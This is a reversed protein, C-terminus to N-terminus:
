QPAGGHKAVYGRIFEERQAPTLRGAKVYQDALHEGAIRVQGGQTMTPAAVTQKNKGSGATVTTSPQASEGQALATEYDAGRARAADFAKAFEDTGLKYGHALLNSKIAEVRQYGSKADGLLANFETPGLNSNLISAELDDLENASAGAGTIAKRYANFFQKLNSVFIKADGLYQKQEDDLQSTDIRDLQSLAGIKLKNKYGLFREPSLGELKALMYQTDRANGLADQADSENKLTLPSSASSSSVNNNINVANGKAAGAARQDNRQKSLQAVRPDRAAADYDNGYGLDAAASMFDKDYNGSALGRKTADTQEVISQLVEPPPPNNADVGQLIDQDLVGGQVGAVLSQYTSAWPVKGELAERAHHNLFNAQVITRDKFATFRKNNAEATDNDAQQQKIDLERSKNNAEAAQRQMAIGEQPALAMLARYDGGFAQQRAQELQSRMAAVRKQEDLALQNSQNQLALNRIQQGTALADGLQLGPGNSYM